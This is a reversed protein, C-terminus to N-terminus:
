EVSKALGITAGQPDMAITFQVMGPLTETFLMQGGLEVLKANDSDVDESNVYFMWACVPAMDHKPTLGGVPTDGSYLMCYDGGPTEMTEGVRWGFGEGYFGKAQELDTATVEAWGIDGPKDRSPEWEGAHDGVAQYLAFTAGSPDALVAIRGVDPIDMAPALVRGGLRTLKEVRADLEDVDIYGLWHPVTAGGRLEEMGGFSQDNNTLSTYGDGKDLEKIVWPFLSSYFTTAAAKDTTNLDFWVFTNTHKGM